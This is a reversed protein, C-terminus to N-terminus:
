LNGYVYGNISHMLNSEVFGDDDKDVGKPDGAFARINRDIWPSQNEDSVEFNAVLERDVDKPSGDARAMGARTIIMPRVLGAYVDAVEHTHSHYMWMVSSPDAPGPGAREPVQWTYTHTKGTLVEDDFKDAGVTGDTYPSGESSKTYFVGHPHISAG